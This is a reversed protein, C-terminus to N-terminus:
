SFDGRMFDYGEADKTYYSEHLGGFTYGGNYPNLKEYEIHYYPITIDYDDETSEVLYKKGGLIDDPVGEPIYKMYRVTQQEDWNILEDELQDLTFEEEYENFIRIDQKHFEIFKKMDNVSKYANDHNQFLPKWGCSRKGIHVEYGFYPSDVIEYEYPFYKEVLSKNTTMMYFNTGM